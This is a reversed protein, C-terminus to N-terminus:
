KDEYLFSRIQMLFEGATDSHAICVLPKTLDLGFVGGIDKANVTKNKYMLEIDYSKSTAIEVFRKVSNFDKLIITKEVM